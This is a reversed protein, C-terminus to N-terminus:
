VGAEELGSKNYKFQIIPEIHNLPSYSILRTEWATSNRVCMKQNKVWNIKNCSENAFGTQQNSEVSSSM